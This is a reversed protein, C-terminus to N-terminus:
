VWVVFMDIEWQMMMCVNSFKGYCLDVYWVFMCGIFVEEEIVMVWVCVGFKLDMGYMMFDVYSLVMGGFCYCYMCYMCLIVCVDESWMVNMMIWM